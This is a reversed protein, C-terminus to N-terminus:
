TAVKPVIPPARLIARNIKELEGCSHCRGGYVVKGAAGKWAMVLGTCYVRAPGRGKGTTPIHTGEDTFNVRRERRVENAEEHSVRLLAGPCEPHTFPSVMPDADTIKALDIGVTEAFSKM